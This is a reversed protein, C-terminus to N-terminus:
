GRKLVRALKRKFALQELVMRVAKGIRRAAYHGGWKLRNRIGRRLLAVAEVHRVENAHMKKQYGEGVGFDVVRPPDSEYVREMMRHLLIEGPYYRAFRGEYGSQERILSAGGQYCLVYAVLSSGAELVFLRVWNRAALKRLDDLDLRHGLRRNQWTAQDLRELDRRRPEWQEPQRYEHLTCVGGAEAALQREHKRVKKLSDGSRLRQFEAFTAPLFLRHHSMPAFVPVAFVLSGAASAHLVKAREPDGVHDFVLGDIDPYQKLILDWLARCDDAGFGEAVLDGGLVKAVKLPRGGLRVPGLRTELKLPAILCPLLIHGGSDNRGSLVCAGSGAPRGAAIVRLWDLSTTLGAVGNLAVMRTAWWDALAPPVDDLNHCTLSIM